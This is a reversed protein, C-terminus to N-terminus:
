TAASQASVLNTRNYIEQKGRPDYIRFGGFEALQEASLGTLMLAIQEYLTDESHGTTAWDAARTLGVFVSDVRAAQPYKKRIVERSQPHLAFARGDSQLGVYISIPGLPGTTVQEQEASNLEHIYWDKDRTEKILEDRFAEADKRKSWVYLWRNQTGPEPVRELQDVKVGHKSLLRVYAEFEFDKAGGHHAVTFSM